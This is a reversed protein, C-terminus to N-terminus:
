TGSGSARNEHSVRLFFFSGAFLDNTLLKTDCRSPSSSWKWGQICQVGQVNYRRQRFRSVNMLIRDHFSPLVCSEFNPGTVLFRNLIGQGPFIVPKLLEIWYNGNWLFTYCCHNKAVCCKVLFYIWIDRFDIEIMSHVSHFLLIRVRKITSHM